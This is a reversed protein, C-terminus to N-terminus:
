KQQISVPYLPDLLPHNSQWLFVENAILEEDSLPRDYLLVQVYRGALFGRNFPPINADNSWYRAAVTLDDMEIVADPRDRTLQPRGNIRLQVGAPGPQSRLTFILFQGFDHSESMVDIVGPYGPGETMVTELRATPEHMLDLNFGSQYDNRGRANASIIGPWGRNHEPAVVIMATFTNSRLQNTTALLYDDIGDFQLYNGQSSSRFSPQATDQRQVADRGWGSADPWIALLNGDRIEPLQQAQRAANVRSADLWWQLGAKIPLRQDAWPELEAAIPQFAFDQPNGGAYVYSFLDHLEQDNLTNLLGTPMLSVDAARQEEIRETEIKTLENPKNPNTVLTIESETEQRVIGSLITGDDLIFIKSRYQDAIVKSPEIIEQLLAAHPDNALALRQRIATLDPGIKVDSQATSTLNTHIAHCNACSAKQFLKEGSAFSPTRFQQHQRQLSSRAQAVSWERNVKPTPDELQLWKEEIDVPIGAEPIDFNATWLIGQVLLRRFCPHSYNDHFHGLTSGFSRGGDPRQFTWAVTQPRGEIEVQLLPKAQPHFRLNLYFEDRLEYGNWGRCIPHETDVQQLPRRDVTLGSFDFNFWGGLLNGYREGIAVEAGTAWHIATFGVGRQMLQMAQARHQPAFLIDGAPRSYFVIADAQALLREDRPWDVDPSVIAEVGPTQNLTEALLRCVDTYMHTAWPHDLQTPILVIRKVAEEEERTRERAAASPHFNCWAISVNPPVANPLSSGAIPDQQYVLYLDFLGEESAITVSHDQFRTSTEQLNLNAVEAGNPADIRVSLSGSQPSSSALNLTIQEVDALRLDRFVIWGEPQIRAVLGVGGEFVDVIESKYYDDAFAARKFRSHLICEADGRLPALEPSNAIGSDTYEATLTLISPQTNEPRTTTFFGHTGPMPAQSEDGALSLIWRVMTQAEELSHQPHPPMPKNGWVGTGGQVIKAALQEVAAPQSKYRRAVEHYAPGASAAKATHCSFCTTRRMMALGPHLDQYNATRRNAYRRSTVVRASPITQDATTGDEEDKVVVQYRITDGWDFFSGHLPSQISVIPQANGVPISMEQADTAGASDHVMLRVTHIGPESFLASVSASSSRQPQGDIEWTFALADGDPDTSDTAALQVNLPHRGAPPSATIRATPTRNGRRYVIRSIQSDTNNGWTDGYEIVYLTGDPAVEMDIPKRFLTEPMFPEIDIVKGADDLSVTQIWNRTWDYIFWRNSFRDHLRLPQDAAARYVPGAMASRGGSGFTPFESSDTSPYWLLAPLPPPLQKLGRNNPSNNIPNSLSFQEGAQRTTFDFMRYAENPGVFMPWGFNGATTTWNFEDYGNVGIQLDEQINPGVDGWMVAGTVSDTTVRFPNRCGMAYIERRGVQPDSFLNGSPITYSGDPEPHIRLIKGRLDQSNASTRLADFNERGPRVDVPLEPIPPCNDGTGLVLNGDADMCLGGGMHIAGDSEISYSLLAVESDLLLRNEATKFRSLRMTQPRESPCFFLYILGSDTFNPDCALGLLGVEGYVAVPVTGLLDTKQTSLNTRKLAGSREIFLLTQSDVIELQMPDSCAPVLVEKEFRLPDFDEAHLANSHSALSLGAICVVAFRFLNQM